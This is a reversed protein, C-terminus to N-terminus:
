MTAINVLAMIKLITVALTAVFGVIFIITLIIKERM